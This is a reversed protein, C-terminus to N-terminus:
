RPSRNPSAVQQPSQQNNPPTMLRQRQQQQQWQQPSGGNQQPHHYQPGSGNSPMRQGPSGIAAAAAHMQQQFQQQAHNQQQQPPPEQRVSERPMVPRLWILGPRSRDRLVAFPTQAEVRKGTRADRVAPNKLVAAGAAAAGRAGPSAGAGGAGGAGAGGGLAAALLQARAQPTALPGACRAVLDKAHESTGETEFVIRGEWGEDACVVGEDSIIQGAKVHAVARYLWKAIRYRAGAASTTEVQDQVLRLSSMIQERWPLIDLYVVPNNSSSRVVNHYYGPSYLFMNLWSPLHGARDFHFSLDRLYQGDFIMRGVNGGDDGMAVNWVIDGRKLFSWVGALFLERECRAVEADTQWVTNSTPVWVRYLAARGPKWPTLLQQQPAWATASSFSFPGQSVNPSLSFHSNGGRPSATGSASIPSASRPTMASATAAVPARYGPQSRLRSLVRSYARTSARALRPVRPDMEHPFRLWDVSVQAYEPSVEAALVFAEVDSFNLPLPDKDPRGPSGHISPAKWTKYGVPDLFRRLVIERGELHDLAFRVEKNTQRLAKVDACDLHSVIRDLVDPTTRTFVQEFLDFQLVEHTYEEWVEEYESQADEEDEDPEEREGFAAEIEDAISKSDRDGADSDRESPAPAPAKEIKRKTLRVDDVHIVRYHSGIKAPDGFGHSRWGQGAVPKTPDSTDAVAAQMAIEALQAPTSQLTPLGAGWPTRIAPALSLTSRGTPTASRAGVTLASTFRLAPMRERPMPASIREPSDEFRLAKPENTPTGYPAPAQGQSASRQVGNMAPPPFPEQAAPAETMARRPPRPPAATDHSAGNVAPGTMSKQDEGSSPLSVGSDSAPQQQEEYSKIGMQERQWQARADAAKQARERHMRDEEDIAAHGDAFAQIYRQKAEEVARKEDEIAKLRAKEADEIAKLRAKEADELAKIRAKEADEIAKLRAREAEAARRKAAMERQYRAEEEAAKRKREEEHKRLIDAKRKREEERLREAEAERARREREARAAAAKKRQIEEEEERKRREEEQAQIAKKAYREKRDSQNQRERAEEWERARREEESEMKLARGIKGM